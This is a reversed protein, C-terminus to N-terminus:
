AKMGSLVVGQVFYKQLLLFLVLTPIISILSATMTMPLDAYFHTSFWTLAVPFTMLKEDRLYILPGLLDNWSALFTFIALTAM